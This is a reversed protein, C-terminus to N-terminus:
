RRTQARLAIRMQKLDCQGVKKIIGDLEAALARVRSNFETRAISEIRALGPRPEIDSVVPRTKVHSIGALQKSGELPQMGGSIKWSRTNTKGRNLTNEM